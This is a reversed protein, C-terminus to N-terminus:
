VMEGVLLNALFGRKGRRRIVILDAGRERAEDVIEVYPEAGRRVRLELACAPPAARADRLQSRRASPRPTPAPGRAAPAVAEFEPNSVVPLM